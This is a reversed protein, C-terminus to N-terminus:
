ADSCTANGTVSGFSNIASGLTSINIYKYGSANFVGRNGTGNSFGNNVSSESYLAGFDAANGLSNITVYDM